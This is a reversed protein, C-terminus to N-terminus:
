SWKLVPGKTSLCAVSAVPTSTRSDGRIIKWDSACVPSCNALCAELLIGIVAIIALNALGPVDPDM